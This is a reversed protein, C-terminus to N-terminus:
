FDQTPPLNSSNLNVINFNVGTVNGGNLTVSQKVRCVTTAVGTTLVALNYTRQDALNSFTFNGSGDCVASQNVDGRDSVLQVIAGSGTAGGVNGSISFLAM